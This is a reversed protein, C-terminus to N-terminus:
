VGKYNKIFCILADIINKFGSIVAEYAKSDIIHLIFLFGIVVMSMIMVHIFHSKFFSLKSKKKYSELLHKLKEIEKEQEVKDNELKSINKIVDTILKTYKANLEGIESQYINNLLVWEEPYDAMVKHFKPNSIEQLCELQHSNQLFKTLEEAVGMTEEKYLITM